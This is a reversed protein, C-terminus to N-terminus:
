PLQEYHSFKYDPACGEISFRKRETLIKHICQDVGFYLPSLFISKWATQGRETIM